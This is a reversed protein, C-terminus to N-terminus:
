SNHKPTGYLYHDVEAAGDKPWDPDPPFTDALEVLEMLPRDTSSAGVLHLEVPTNAPLDVPEDPVFVKGDFHAHVTM